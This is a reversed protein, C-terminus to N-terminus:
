TIGRLPKFTRAAKRYRAVTGIDMFYGKVPWGYFRGEILRPFIEQELSCPRNKPILRLIRPHCVYVGANIYAPQKLPAKEIFRIVRKRHDLIVSGYEKRSATRNEPKTLVMTLDARSKAHFRTLKRLDTKFFTDGNLVLFSQHPDIWREAWKLAGATGMPKPEISYQIRVGWRRGDQFHGQVRDARYGCLLIFNKFGSRKLHVIVHELFPRGHIPLLSKPMSATLYGLRRGRGGVLILTKLM